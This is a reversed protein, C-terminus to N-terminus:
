SEAEDDDSETRDDAERYPRQLRVLRAGRPGEREILHQEAVLVDIAQRLAKRNGTVGDEVQKRSREEGALELYRSVKEMLNTPRFTGAESVVQETDIRWTCDGSEADSDLVFLGPSPRTLFGLRDRHVSIKARGTRGRAFPELTMLGLHVDVGTQKRESGYSYRGRQERNKVVHDPLVVAAGEASFPNVVTRLFREVDPTSSPDCDHLALSANFADFVVLRAHLDAVLALVDARADDGLAEEPHLYAFSSAVQEDGLGLSRLRDLVASPGMDDTDIWVVGHGAKVEDVGVALLLWSKGADFEGSVVHRRGAYFLGGIDPPTPSQEALKILNQRQWTHADVKALTPPASRPRASEPQEITPSRDSMGGV